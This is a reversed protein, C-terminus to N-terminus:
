RRRRQRRRRRRRPSMRRGRQHWWRRPPQRRPHWRPGFGLGYGFGYLPAVRYPWWFPALWAPGGWPAWRHSYWDYYFQEGYGAPYPRRPVVIVQNTRLDVYQMGPAPDRLVDIPTGDVTHRPVGAEQHLRQVVYARGSMTPACPPGDGCLIHVPKNCHPFM